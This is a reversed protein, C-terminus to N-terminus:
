RCRGVWAGFLGRERTDRVAAVLSKWAEYPMARRMYNCRICAAVVNERTHGKANDIRDLTMRLETEGCYACGRVITEEIFEKTLNNEYGRKQDSNRSDKWIFSAIDTNNKRKVSLNASYRLYRANNDQGNLRRREERLRSECVRCQTRARRGDKVAYDTFAALPKEAHCTRCIQTNMITSM